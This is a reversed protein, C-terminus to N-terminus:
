HEHQLRNSILQLTEQNIYKFLAQSIILAPDELFVLLFLEETVSLEEMLYHCMVLGIKV